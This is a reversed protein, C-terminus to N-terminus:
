RESAVSRYKAAMSCWMRIRAYVYLYHKGLLCVPSYSITDIEVNGVKRGIARILSTIPATKAQNMWRILDCDCAGKVLSFM